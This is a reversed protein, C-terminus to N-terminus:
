SVRSKVLIYQDMLSRGLGGYETPWSIGLLGRKGIGRMFEKQAPGPGLDPRGNMEDRVQDTMLSGIIERVENRWLDQKPTFRFDM